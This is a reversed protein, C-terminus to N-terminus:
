ARIAPHLWAPTPPEPAGAARLEAVCGAWAEDVTAATKVGKMSDAGAWSLATLVGRMIRSDSVVWSTGLVAANRRAHEQMWDGIYRRVDPDVKDVFRVDTILLMRHGDAQARHTCADLWAQFEQFGEISAAGRFRVFAVPWSGDDMFEVYSM